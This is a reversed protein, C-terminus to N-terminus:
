ASSERASDCLGEVRVYHTEMVYAMFHGSFLFPREENRLTNELSAEDM